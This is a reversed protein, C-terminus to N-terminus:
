ERAHENGTGSSFKSKQGAVSFFLLYVKLTQTRLKSKYQLKFGTCYYSLTLPTDSTDLRQQRSSISHQVTLAELLSPFNITHIM